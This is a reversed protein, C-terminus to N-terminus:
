GVAAMAASQMKYDPISFKLEEQCFRKWEDSVNDFVVNEDKFIGDTVLYSDHLYLIDSDEIRSRKFETEKGDVIRKSSRLSTTNECWGPFM